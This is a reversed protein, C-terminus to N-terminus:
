FNNILLLTNVSQFSNITLTKFKRLSTLNLKNFIDGNNPSILQKRHEGDQNLIFFLKDCNIKSNSSRIPELIDVLYRAYNTLYVDDPNVNANNFSFNNINVFNNNNSM